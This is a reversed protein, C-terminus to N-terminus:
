DDNGGHHGGDDGGSGSDGGDDDGPEPEGHGGHDDGPELEGRGGHDDGPEPEGSHRVHGAADDAGHRAHDDGPEPEGSHRVHGAARDAGHRAHDDGPEPEGSHRVHGAADDAGHRLQDDGREPEGSYRARDDVRVNAPSPGDDAAGFAAWAGLAPTAVLAGAAALITIRKMIKEEHNPSGYTGVTRSDRDSKGDSPPGVVM